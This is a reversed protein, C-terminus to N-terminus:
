HKRREGWSSMMHGCGTMEPSAGLVNAEEEEEHSLSCLLAIVIKITQAFFVPLVEM